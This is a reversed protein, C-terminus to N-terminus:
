ACVELMRELTARAPAADLEPVSVPAATGKRIQELTNRLKAPTVKAMHSCTSFLLPDIKVRDAYQRELRRVLNGETGIVIHAGAPASRVFDIIFSTSGAADAAQAVEPSCEPHVVIRCSPDAARAANVQDATFRAHIACLGPWCLLSAKNAAALDLAEGRKRIDLLHIDTDALGLTRATNQGLNKDPLFLVGDGEKLAWRLMQEANASTCVAGGHRGVVAKVDMFTNVYALPILRRGTSTLRTLIHDLLVAPTMLAMVCDADPEPLHVAQDARALLAASEAMFYVGCFVIHRAAVNAAKRSLELSDGLFDCHDVIDQHQYHHGLLVVEDGLEKRLADIARADADRTEHQTSM